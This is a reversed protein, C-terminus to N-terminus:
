GGTGCDSKLICKQFNPRFQLLPRKKSGGGGGSFGRNEEIQHERTAGTGFRQGTNRQEGPNSLNSKKGKWHVCKGVGGRNLIKTKRPQPREKEKKLAKRKKPDHARRGRRNFRTDRRINCYKGGVVM